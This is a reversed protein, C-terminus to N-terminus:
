NYLENEVMQMDEDGGKPQVKTYTVEPSRASVGESKQVPTVNHDLDIYDLDQNEVDTGGEDAGGSGGATWVFDYDESDNAPKSQKNPKSYLEDLAVDPSTKAGRARKKKAGRVGSQDNYYVHTDDPPTMTVGNNYYVHTDDPPLTDSDEPVTEYLNTEHQESPDFNRTECLNMEPLTSPHNDIVPHGAPCRRRRRYIFVVLVAAIVAVCAATVLGAILGAVVIVVVVVVVTVRVTM